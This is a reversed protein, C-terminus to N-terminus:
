MEEIIKRDKLTSLITNIPRDGSAHGLEETSMLGNEELARIIYHSVLTTNGMENAYRKGTKSLIWMGPM